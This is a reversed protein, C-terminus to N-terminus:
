TQIQCYPTWSRFEPQWIRTKNKSVTCLKEIKPHLSYVWDSKLISWITIDMHLTKEQATPLPHKNYGIHERPLVRNAKARSWETNWPQRSGVCSVRGRVLSYPLFGSPCPLDPKWPNRFPWSVLDWGHCPWSSFAQCALCILNEPIEFLQGPAWRLSSIQRESAQRLPSSGLKESVPLFAKGSRKGFLFWKLVKILLNGLHHYKILNNLIFSHKLKFEKAPLKNALHM